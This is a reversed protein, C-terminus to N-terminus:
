STQIIIPGGIIVTPLYCIYTYMIKHGETNEQRDAQGDTQRDTQRDVSQVGSNQNCFNTVGYKPKM